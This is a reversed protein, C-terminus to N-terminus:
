AVQLSHKIADIEVTADAEELKFDIRMTITVEVIRKRPVREMELMVDRHVGYIFNKPNILLGKSGYVTPTGADVDETLIAPVKVVDIGQYTPTQAELLYRTFAESVGVDALESIYDLRALHSVYFRFNNEDDIYKGPMSQYATKLVDPSLTAELADYVNGGATTQKFMGDLVDLVTGGTGASDGYLSLWDMDFAAKAQTLNMITDMIRGGEISDELADYGIDTAIIVEEASLVVKSTVPETITTHETGQAVPKQLVRASYTIKDIQRKNATMAERRYEAILVSKDIIGRVFSGAQEPNLLGGNALDSTDFAKELVEDITKM